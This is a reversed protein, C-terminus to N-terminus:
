RAGADENSDHQLKKDELTLPKTNAATDGRSPPVDKPVQGAMSRVYAAIQWMQEETLLRRFSPMGNPRGQILTAVIQPSSSGYIWQDDILPVGIGGGGHAHCEVCNFETYLRQGESVHWASKEFREIRPDPPSPTASGAIVNSTTALEAQSFPIPPATERTERHCAAVLTCLLLAQFRM